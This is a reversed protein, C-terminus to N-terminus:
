PVLTLNLQGCVFQYASLNINENEGWTEYDEGSIQVNGSALVQQSSLQDEAEPTVSLLQYYFTANSILDDFVITLRIHDANQVQGGSWIEVPTITKM